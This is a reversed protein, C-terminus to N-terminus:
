GERGKRHVTADLGDDRHSQMYDLDIEIKVHCGLYKSYQQINM